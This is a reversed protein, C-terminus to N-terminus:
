RVTEFINILDLVEKAQEDAFIEMQENIRMNVNDDSLPETLVGQKGAYGYKHIYATIARWVNVTEGKDNTSFEAIGKAAAWVCISQYLTPDGAAAGPSTPKRGYELAWIWFPALIQGSDGDTITELQSITQGTAYQGNAQLSNIVDIKINNLINNLYQTIDAM